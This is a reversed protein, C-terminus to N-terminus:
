LGEKESDPTVHPPRDRESGWARRPGARRGVSTVLAVAATSLGPAPTLFAGRPPAPAVVVPAGIALWPGGVRMGQPHPSPPAIGQCTESTSAHIVGPRLVSHTGGGAVM